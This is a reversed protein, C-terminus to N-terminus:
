PATGSKPDNGHDKEGHPESKLKAVAAQAQDIVQDVPIGRMRAIQDLTMPHGEPPPFDAEADVARPNVDWSKSIYGVTMWGRIPEDRHQSWYVAGVVFRVAFFLTLAVSLALASSLIPHRHFLARM